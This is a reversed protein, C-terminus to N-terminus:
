KGGNAQLDNVCQSDLDPIDGDFTNAFFNTTEVSPEMLCGDATCHPSGSTKHDSQTPSGTGVLGMNHGFEHRFVTGEIKEKPPAGIGSSVDDITQGFFAVSTNWYAFGLVNSNDKYKGDVYLFYVHLTNSGTETYNDRYEKEISRIDSASYADQGGSPIETLNDLSISQKHLRRKLFIRLSDLGAQTPKHGQMYDIEVQLSSYQDSKLFATASDGPAVHSNFEKQGPDSNPGTTSDSCTYTLLALSLFATLWCVRKLSNM